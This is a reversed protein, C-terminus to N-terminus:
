LAVFRKSMGAATDKFRTVSARYEKNVQTVRKKEFFESIKKADQDTPVAMSKMFDSTAALEEASVLDVAQKEQFM